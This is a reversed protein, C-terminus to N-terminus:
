DKGRKLLRELIREALAETPSVIGLDEQEKRTTIEYLKIAENATIDSKKLVEVAKMKLAANAEASEQKKVSIANILEQEGGKIDKMVGARIGQEWLKEWGYEKTWNAITSHHISKDLKQRIQTAIDRCSYLHSGDADPTLYLNKAYETVEVDKRRRM